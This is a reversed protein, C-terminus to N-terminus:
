WNSVAANFIDEVLMEVIDPILQGEVEQLLQSSDYELYQTFTREFNWQPEIENTFRVKVGIDLRMKQAYEDASVSSYTTTYRIIEGEFALDGGEQVQSLKTQRSFRDQLAETLTSSLIPAVMAANNPFYAVSFTKAEAPISAGSLSYSIKCGWQSLSLAAVAILAAVRVLNRITNNM